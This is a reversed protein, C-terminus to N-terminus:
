LKLRKLKQELVALHMNTYLSSSMKDDTTRNVLLKAENYCLEAENLKNQDILVICLNHRAQANNPEVDLAKKYLLEGNLLDKKHTVFLEALTLIGNIHDPYSTVVTQLNSFAEAFQKNELQILAINM